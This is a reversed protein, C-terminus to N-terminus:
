WRLRVRALTGIVGMSSLCIYSSYLLRVTLEHAAVQGFSGYSM